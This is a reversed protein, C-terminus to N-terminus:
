RRACTKWPAAFRDATPGSARRRWSRLRAFLGRGGAAEALNRHRGGHGHIAQAGAPTAEEIHGMDQLLTLIPYVM